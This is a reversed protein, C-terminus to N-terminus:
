KAQGADPGPLTRVGDFATDRKLREPFSREYSALRPCIIHHTGSFGFIKMELMADNASWREAAMRYAAIMMGTRDDGLRCHVFVKKDPNERMLRLFKAFPEDHPLPCHWPLAVYKMGLKGVEMAESSHENRGSRTDVIIDVGMKKLEKFGTHNPQGGRLLSTSVQGFNAIGSVKRKEGYVRKARAPSTAKQIDPAEAGPCLAVSSLLLISPVIPVWLFQRLRSLTTM